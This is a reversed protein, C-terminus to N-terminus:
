FGEPVFRAPQAPAADLARRARKTELKMAVSRSLAEDLEGKRFRTRGLAALAIVPNVEEPAADLAEFVEDCGKSGARKTVTIVEHDGKKERRVDSNAAGPYFAVLADRLKQDTKCVDDPLEMEAGDIKVTPM